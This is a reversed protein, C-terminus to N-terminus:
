GFSSSRICNPNRICRERIDSLFFDAKPMLDAVMCSPDMYWSVNYLYGNLECQKIHYFAEEPEYKQLRETTKGRTPEYEFPKGFSTESESEFLFDRICESNLKM